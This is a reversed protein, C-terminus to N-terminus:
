PVTAEVVFISVPGARPTSVRVTGFGVQRCLSEVTAPSHVAFGTSATAGVAELAEAAELALVLRGGPRLVRYIEELGRLPPQWFYLANVALVADFTQSTFPLAEAPAQVMLLRGADHLARLAKTRRAARRIMAASVDAAALLRPNRTALRALAWGPGCGVELVAEDGSALVALAAENIASNEWELWRGILPAVLGHPRAAQRSIWRDIRARM